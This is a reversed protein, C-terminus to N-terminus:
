PSKLMKPKAKSSLVRAGIKKTKSPLSTQLRLTPCRIVLEKPKDPQEKSAATKTKRPIVYKHQAYLHTIVIPTKNWPYQETDSARFFKAWVPNRAPTVELRASKFPQKVEHVQFSRVQSKNGLESEAVMIPGRQKQIKIDMLKTKALKPNKTKM